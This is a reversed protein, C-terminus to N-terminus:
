NKTCVLVDIYAPRWASISSTGGVVTHNHTPGAFSGGGTAGNATGGPGNAAGSMFSIAHSHLPSGAAIGHIGGGGTPGGNVNVVRLMKDNITTDVAWGSPAFQQYFIMSTGAAFSSSHSHLATVGGSVLENMQGGTATIPTGSNIGPTNIRPSTFIGTSVIPNTLTKNTLTQASSINVIERFQGGTVLSFSNDNVGNRVIKFIQETNTRNDFYYAGGSFELWTAYLHTNSADFIKNAITQNATLTTVIDSNVTVSGSGKGALNLGINTDTGGPNIKIPQGTISPWIEFWNVSNDVQKIKTRFTGAALNGASGSLSTSWFEMDGTSNDYVIVGGYANTSGTEYYWNTGASNLYLNFAIHGSNNLANDAILNIKFNNGVKLRDSLINVYGNTGKSALSLNVDVDTGEASIIPDLGTAASAISINNVDGVAEKVRIILNGSSYGKIGNNNPFKIFTDFWTDGTITGGAYPFKNAELYDINEQIDKHALNAPGSIPGSLPVPSAKTGDGKVADDTKIVYPNPKPLLSM